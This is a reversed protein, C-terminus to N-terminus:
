HHKFPRPLQALLFITFFIALDMSSQVTDSGKDFINNSTAALCVTIFIMGAIFSQFKARWTAQNPVQKLLFYALPLAVLIYIISKLVLVIFMDTYIILHPSASITVKSTLVEIIMIAISLPVTLALLYKLSIYVRMGIFWLLWIGFQLSLQVFIDALFYTYRITHPNQTILGPLGYFLMGTAFTFGLWSYIHALPNKTRRYSLISKTSFAYVAIAGLTWTYANLPASTFNVM